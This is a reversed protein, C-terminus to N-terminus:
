LHDQELRDHLRDVRLSPLISIIYIPFGKPDRWFPSRGPLNFRGNKKEKKAEEKRTEAEM